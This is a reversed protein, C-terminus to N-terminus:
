RNLMTCSATAFAARDSSGLDSISAMLMISEAVKLADADSMNRTGESNRVCKYLASMESLPVRATNAAQLIADTTQARAHSGAAILMGAIVAIVYRHRV